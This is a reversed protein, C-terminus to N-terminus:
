VTKYGDFIERKRELYISCDRYIWEGFADVQDRITYNIYRLGSGHRVIKNKKLGIESYLLDRVWSMLELRGCFTVRPSSRLFSGDGDFFGRIWHRYYDHPIRNTCCKHDPRGPVIGLDTLRDYLYADSVTFRTKDRVMRARSTTRLFESIKSLHDHDRASLNIELGPRSKSCYGDAYIFGLWYCAIEDNLNDFARSWIEHKKPKSNRIETGMKNLRKWILERSVNYSKAINQISRGSLYIANIAIEEENTFARSPM